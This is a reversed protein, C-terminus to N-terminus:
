VHELQPLLVPQPQDEGRHVRGRKALSRPRRRLYSMTDPTVLEHVMAM